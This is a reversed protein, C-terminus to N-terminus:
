TVVLLPDLYFDDAAVISAVTCVLRARCQGTTNVTKTIRCRQMYTPSDTWTSTTDDSLTSDEALTWEGSTTEAKYQLQMYVETDAFDATPTTNHSVFFDFTKSGTASVNAYIWPTSFPIEPDNLSTTTINWAAATGEFTAGGTRTVITSSIAQGASHVFAMQAPANTNGCGQITATAGTVITGPEFWATWTAPTKINSLVVSPRLGALRVFEPPTANTLSSWDGGHIISLGGGAFAGDIVNGTRNSGNLIDFGYFRTQEDVYVVRNASATDNALNITFNYFDVRGGAAQSVWFNQGNLVPTWRCNRFVLTENDDVRLQFYSRSSFSVGDAYVSGDLNLFYSAAGSVPGFQTTTSVVIPSTTGSAVSLIKVPAGATPCVMTFHATYTKGDVNDHAVYIIDGSAFSGGAATQVDFISNAAKAWTDYPSTNSGSVSDMYYTAM